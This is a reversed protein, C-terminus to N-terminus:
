SSRPAKELANGPGPDVGIVTGEPEDSNEIEVNPVLRVERIAAEAASEQQGLVDPVTVLQAGKSIFITVVIPM